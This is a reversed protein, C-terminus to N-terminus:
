IFNYCTNSCFYFNSKKYTTIFNTSLIIKNCVHCKLNLFTFIHSIIEKPIEKEQKNKKNM